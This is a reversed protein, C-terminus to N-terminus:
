KNVQEVIEDYRIGMHSEEYYCEGNNILLVQPSQHYVSFRDAINNSIDRNAILDLFYVKVPIEGTNWSNELRNLVMSSISCRTSHKFILAKESSREIEDLQKSDTLKIWEM